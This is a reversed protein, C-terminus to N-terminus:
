VLDSLARHFWLFETTVNPEHTLQAEIGDVAQRQDYKRLFELDEFASSTFEIAFM